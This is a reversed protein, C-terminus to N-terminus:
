YQRVINYFNNGGVDGFFRNILNEYSTDGAAGAGVTEFHGSPLWFINYVTPTLMVNGSGHHVLNTAPNPAPSQDPNATRAQVAASGTNLAEGTTAPPNTPSSNAITAVASVASGALFGAIVLGAVTVSARRSTALRTIRGM